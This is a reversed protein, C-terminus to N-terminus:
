HGHIGGGLLNQFILIEGRIYKHAWDVPHKSITTKMLKTESPENIKHQSKLFSVIAVVTELWYIILCVTVTRKMLLISWFWHDNFLHHLNCMLLEFRAKVKICFLPATFLTALLLCVLYVKKKRGWTPQNTKSCIYCQRVESYNEGNM